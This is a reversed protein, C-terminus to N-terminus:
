RPAHLFELLPLVKEVFMHARFLMIFSLFNDIFIHECFWSEVIIIYVDTFPYGCGYYARLVFVDCCGSSSFRLCILQHEGGNVLTVGQFASLASLFLPRFFRQPDFLSTSKFRPIILLLPLRELLISFSKTYPRICGSLCQTLRFSLLPLQVVFFARRRLWFSLLPQQVVFYAKCRFWCSLLPLQVFFNIFFIIIVSQTYIFCQWSLFQNPAFLANDAIRGKLFFLTYLNKWKFQM